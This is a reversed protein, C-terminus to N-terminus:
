NHSNLADNMTTANYISYPTNEHLYIKKMDRKEYRYKAYKIYIISINTCIHSAEFLM